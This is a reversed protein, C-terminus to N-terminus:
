LKKLNLLQIKSYLSEDKNKNQENELYIIMMKKDEELNNYKLGKPIKVQIEYRFFRLEVR